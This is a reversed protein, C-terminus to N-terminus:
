YIFYMLDIDNLSNVIFSHKTFNYNKPTKSSFSIAGGSANGFLISTSSRLICIQDFYDASINDVQGQGDPTSEPIGDVLIKIGRIGFNSRAGFGRISIRSDQANNFDSLAFLGPVNRLVTNLSSSVKFTEIRDGSILTESIPNLYSKRFATVDIPDLKFYISDIESVYQKEGKKLDIGYSFTNQFNTDFGLKAGYNSPEVLFRDEVRPEYFDKNTGNYYFDAEFKTLNQTEINNGFRWGINTKM